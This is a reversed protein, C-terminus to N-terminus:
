SINMFILDAGRAISTKSKSILPHKNAVTL